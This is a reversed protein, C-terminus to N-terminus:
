VELRYTVVVLKIDGGRVFAGWKGASENVWCIVEFKCSNVWCIAESPFLAMSTLPKECSALLSIPRYLLRPLVSPPNSALLYMCVNVCVTWCCNLILWYKMFKWVPGLIMLRYMLRACFIIDLWVSSMDLMM